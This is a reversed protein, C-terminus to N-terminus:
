KLTIDLKDNNWEGEAEFYVVPLTISKQKLRLYGEYLNYGNLSNDAVSFAVVSPHLQAVHYSADIRQMYAGWWTPDNTPNGGKTILSSSAGSNIPASAVVYIGVKDCASYLDLSPAGGEIKIANFGQAKLEELQSEDFDVSEAVGVRKANLSIQEGNITLKGNSPDVEVSRFGVKYNQYELYRGERQISLKLDFLQPNDGSWGDGIPIATSFTLTDEGRMSQTIDRKGFSVMEGDQHRLSYHVTSTRESLAHSKIILYIQSHLKEGMVSTEIRLDRIMQTPQSVVCVDGIAPELDGMKWGEISSVNSEEDIKIVVTNRGENAIKTINFEAPSSSNQVKAVEKNNIYLTYPASASGVRLYFQRGIWSFPRSFKSEFSKKDASISWEEINIVFKSSQNDSDEKDGIVSQTRPEETGIDMYKSDSFSQASM